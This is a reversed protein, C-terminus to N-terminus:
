AVGRSEYQYDRNGPALSVLSRATELQQQFILMPEIQSASITSARRRLNCFVSGSSSSLARENPFEKALGALLDCAQALYSVQAPTLRRHRGSTPDFTSYRVHEEIAEALIERYARSSTQSAVLKEASEVARQTLDSEFGKYDHDFQAILRQLRAVQLQARILALQYDTRDGDQEILSELITIARELLM